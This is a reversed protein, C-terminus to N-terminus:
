KSEKLVKGTGKCTPCEQFRCLIERRYTTRESLGLENAIERHSKGNQIMKCVKDATEMDPKRGMRPHKRQGLNKIAVKSVMGPTCGVSEAIKTRSWGAFMKSTLMFKVSKTIDGPSFLLGQGERNAKLNHLIADKLSGNRVVVDINKHGMDNEAMIRHFGDGVWYIEEQDIFVVPPPFYAGAQKEKAYQGIKKQNLSVRMEADLWKKRMLVFIPLSQLGMKITAVTM